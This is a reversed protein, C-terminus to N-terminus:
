ADVGRKPGAPMDAWFLVTGFCMLAGDVEWPEDFSDDYSAVTVDRDYCDNREFCVLVESGSDPLEDNVSVWAIPEVIRKTVSRSMAM